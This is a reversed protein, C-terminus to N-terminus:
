EKKDILVNGDEVYDLHIYEIKGEDYFDALYDAAESFTEAWVMGTDIAMDDAFDDFFSVEFKYIM